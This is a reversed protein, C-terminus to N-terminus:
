EATKQFEMGNLVLVEGEVSYEVADEEMLSDAMYKISLEGDTATYYANIIMGTGTMVLTSDENFTYQVGYGSTDEWTGVLASDVKADEFPEIGKENYEAPIFRMANGSTDSIEINIGTLKNGSVTYNYTGYLNAAAVNLTIQSAGDEDSIEYTGSFEISGFLMTLNGEDDFVYYTQTTQADSSDAATNEIVYTGAISTNFFLVYVIGLAVALVLVCASIIICPMVPSKKKVATTAFEQASSYTNVGYNYPSQIDQSIEDQQASETQADNDNETLQAGDELQENNTSDATSESQSNDTLASNDADEAELSLNMNNKEDM